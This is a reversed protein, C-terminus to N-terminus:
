KLYIVTNGSDVQLPYNEMLIANPVDSWDGTGFVSDTKTVEVVGTILVEVTDAGSTDGLAVADVAYDTGSTITSDAIPSFKYSSGSGEQELLDGKSVAGDVNVTQVWMDHEYKIDGVSM